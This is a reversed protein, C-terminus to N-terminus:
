QAAQRGEVMPLPSVGAGLTTAFYIDSCVQVDTEADHLTGEPERGFVRIYLDRLRPWREGRRTNNKMTCHSPKITFRDGLDEHGNRYLESAIVNVDFETNHAVVLTTESMLRTIIPILVDGFSVGLETAKATSIGHIKEAQEPITFAGQPNVLFNGSELLSPRDGNEGRLEYVRWALQVVRCREWETSYQPPVRRPPLGTTETDIIWIRKPTPTPTPATM